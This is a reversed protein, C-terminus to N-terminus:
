VDIWEQKQKLVRLGANKCVKIAQNVSIFSDAQVKKYLYGSVKVARISLYSCYPSHKRLSIAFGTKVACQWFYRASFVAKQTKLVSDLVAINKQIDEIVVISKGM